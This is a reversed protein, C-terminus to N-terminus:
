VTKLKRGTIPKSEWAEFDDGETAKALSPRAALFWEESDWVALGVLESSNVDKLTYVAILGRQRRTAEGYRHMSEILDKERQPHPAHVSMNVFLEDGKKSRRSNALV